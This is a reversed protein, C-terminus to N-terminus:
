LTVPSPHLSSPSRRCSALPAKYGWGFYAQALAVRATVSDPKVTAWHKLTEIHAAWEADTAREGGFPGELGEYFVYLKWVGGPFRSKNRRVSDAEKELADFDSRRLMSGVESKYSEQEVESAFSVPVQFPRVNLQGPAPNAQKQQRYQRAVDGLSKNEDAGPSVQAQALSIDFCFASFLVCWVLRVIARM